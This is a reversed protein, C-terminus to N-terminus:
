KDCERPCTVIKGDLMVPRGNTELVTKGCPCCKQVPAASKREGRYRPDDVARQEFTMYRRDDKIYSM